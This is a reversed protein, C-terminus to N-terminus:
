AKLEVKTVKQRILNRLPMRDTEAVDATKFVYARLRAVYLLFHSDTELAREVTSWSGHGSSDQLTSAIGSDDFTLTMALPLKQYARSARRVGWKLYRPFLAATILGGLFTGLTIGFNSLATEFPDWQVLAIGIGIFTCLLIIYTQMIPVRLRAPWGTFRLPSQMFIQAVDEETMTTTFTIRPSDSM